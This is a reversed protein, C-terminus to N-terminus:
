EETCDLRGSASVSSAYSVRRHGLRGRVIAASSESKSSAAVGRLVGDTVHVTDLGRSASDQTVLRQTMGYPPRSAEHMM